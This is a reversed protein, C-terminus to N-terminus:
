SRVAVMAKFQEKSLGTQGRSIYHEAGRGIHRTPCEAADDNRRLMGLGGVEEALAAESRGLRDVLELCLCLMLTM